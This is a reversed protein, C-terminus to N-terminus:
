LRFRPLNIIRREYDEETHRAIVEFPRMMEHDEHELIHCHWVYRGTFPGFRAIIRTVAHPAARVTDKLGNETPDPPVAPGTFVIEGTKRYHDVDYPQRDLIRFNVLHIHIPHPFTSTSVFSWIEIDGLRPRESIRDFWRKNDLLLMPRPYDPDTSFILSLYRITTADNPSLSPLNSLKKPISSTDRDSLPLSVRFQMVNADTEPNFPVDAHCPASNKLIINKGNLGSFDIILDVRESPALTIEKTTVPREMLGGDTGIQVFSQKSDLYLTYFRTNSGNLVRFRYKRPEVDLFPWVKGNVLITDGCFEPVISPNPLQSSLNNHMDNHGNHMHSNIANNPGTPYYLSGDENFSRDQIL